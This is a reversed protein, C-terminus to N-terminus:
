VKRLNEWAFFYTIQSDNDSFDIPGRVINGAGGAHNKQLILHAIEDKEIHLTAHAGDTWNVNMSNSDNRDLSKAFVGARAVFKTQLRGVAVDFRERRYTHLYLQDLTIDGGEITTQGGPISELVLDPNCRDTSCTTTLRAGFLVKDTINYVGGARFRATALSSSDGTGDRQDLDSYNSGARLDGHLDLREVKAAEQRPVEISGSADDLSGSLDEDDEEEAEASKEPETEDALEVTDARDKSVEALDSDSVEPSATDQAYTPFAPLMGVVVLVFVVMM